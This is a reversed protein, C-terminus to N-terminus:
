CTVRLSLWSTQMLPFENTDNGFTVCTTNQIVLGFTNNLLTEVQLIQRQHSRSINDRVMSRGRGQLQHAFGLKVFNGM